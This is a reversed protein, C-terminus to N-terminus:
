TDIIADPRARRQTLPTPEQLQAIKTVLPVSTPTKPGHKGLSVILEIFRGAKVQLHRCQPDAKQREDTKISHSSQTFAATAVLRLRTRKVRPLRHALRRRLFSSSGSLLKTPLSWILSGHM